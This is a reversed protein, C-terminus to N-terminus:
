IKSPDMMVDSTVVPYCLIAGAFWSPKATMILGAFHGGASFGCLFIQKVLPNQKLQNIFNLAEEVLTPYQHRVERYWFYAAHYGARNFVNAVPLAERPSTFWYGGGPFIFVLDRPQDDLFLEVVNNQKM